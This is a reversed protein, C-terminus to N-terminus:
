TAARRRQVDEVGFLFTLLAYRTGATVPLAEHLNSCSFVIAGGTPPAYLDDGYEPFRLSGGEYEGYNLNVTVAFRFHATTPSVNDRHLGFHGNNAADYRTILFGDHAGVRYHFAKEIEFNLRRAFAETLLRHMAPDSIVHDFRSKQAAHVERVDEGDRNYTVTSAHNGGAHHLDILERCLESSLLHPVILVPAVASFQRAPSAAETQELHREVYHAVAEAGAARRATLRLNTDFRLSLPGAEATFGYAQATRGTADAVVFMQEPADDIEPLADTPARVVAFLDVAGDEARAVVDKLDDAETRFADATPYFVVLPM